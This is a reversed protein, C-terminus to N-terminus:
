YEMKELCDHLGFVGLWWETPTRAQRFNFLNTARPPPPPETTRKQSPSGPTIHTKYTDYSFLRRTKLYKQFRFTPRNHESYRQATSLDLNLRLIMPHACVMSESERERGSRSSYFRFLSEFFRPYQLTQEKSRPERQVTEMGPALAMWPLQQAQAGGTPIM